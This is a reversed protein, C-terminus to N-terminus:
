LNTVCPEHCMPRAVPKLSVIREPLAAEPALQTPPFCGFAKPCAACTACLYSTYALSDYVSLWVVDVCLAGAPADHCRCSCRPRRSVLCHTCPVQLLMTTQPEKLTATKSAKRAGAYPDTVVFETKSRGVSPAIAEPVSGIGEWFAMKQQVTTQRKRAGQRDDFSASEIFSPLRRLRQALEKRAKNAQEVIKSEAQMRHSSARKGAVAPKNAKRKQFFHKAKIIHPHMAEERAKAQADMAAAAAKEKRREFKARRQLVEKSPLFRHVQRPATEAVLKQAGDAEEKQEKKLRMIMKGCRMAEMKQAETPKFEGKKLGVFSHALQVCQAAEAAAKPSVEALSEMRARDKYDYKQWPTGAWTNSGVGDSFSGGFVSNVQAAKKVTDLDDRHQRAEVEALVKDNIKDM